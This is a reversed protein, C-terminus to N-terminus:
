EQPFIKIQTNDPFLKTQGSKEINQKRKVMRQIRELQPYFSEYLIEAETRERGDKEGGNILILKHETLWGSIALEKAHLSLKNWEAIALERTWPGILQGDNEETLLLERIKLKRDRIGLHSSKVEINVVLGDVLEATFDSGETYKANMTARKVTEKQSAIIGQTRVEVADGRDTWLKEPVVGEERRIQKLTRRWLHFPLEFIPLAPAQPIIGDLTGPAIALAEATM